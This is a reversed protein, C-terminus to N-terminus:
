LPAKGKAMHFAPPLPPPTPIPQRAVQEQAQIDEDTVLVGQDEDDLMEADDDPQAVAAQSALPQPLAAQSSTQPLTAPPLDVPRQPKTREVQTKFFDLFASLKPHVKYLILPFQDFPILSKDAAIRHKIDKVCGRLSFLDSFFVLRPYKLVLKVISNFANISNPTYGSGVTAWVANYENLAGPKVKLDEKKFAYELHYKERFKNLWEYASAFMLVSAMNSLPAFRSQFKGLETLSELSGLAHGQFDSAGDREDIFSQLRGMIVLDNCEISIMEMYAAGTLKTPAEAPEEAAVQTTIASSAKEAAKRKKTAVVAQVAANEARPADQMEVDFARQGELQAEEESAGRQVAAKTAAGLANTARGLVEDHAKARAAAAEKSKEADDRVKAAELAAIRKAKYKTTLQSLIPILARGGYLESFVDLLQESKMRFRFDRLMQCLEEDTHAEPDSETLKMEGKRAGDLLQFIFVSKGRVDQSLVVANARPILSPVESTWHAWSVEESAAASTTATTATM